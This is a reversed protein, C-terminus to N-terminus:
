INFQPILKTGSDDESEIASLVRVNKQIGYKNIVTVIDGIFFDKGYKFAVDSLVEGSFGETYSLAALNERGREALLKLYTEEDIEGDSGKNSSIDRADTFTEFRNLGSLENNLDAYVRDLGEGEGGILTANAYEETFLQYDTNYLNEFEDSFVVYPRETQGYSRDTGAYLVFVMSNNTVFIDWGYHYTKCIETIVDDLHEGTVQKEINDNLGASVGLVLGPIIRNSDTPSIANDNVLSRISEEATGTLTTQNWVIRQHLLFKLERGTACLFDGNEVDTILQINKIIMVKEYTSVSTRSTNSVIVSGGEGTIEIDVTNDPSPIGDQMCKGFLRFSQIKSNVLRISEGKLEKEIDDGSTYIISMGCESDNTIDQLIHTGFLKETENLTFSTTIPESLEYCLVIPHESLHNKWLTVDNTNYANDYVYIDGTTAVSMGQKCGYTGITGTPILMYNTCCGNPYANNDVSKKIKNNIITSSYRYKGTSNTSAAKWDESGDLVITEFRKIKEGTGNAYVVIEDCLWQQGNSDTYNGENIVQVGSIGGPTLFTTKYETKIEEVRIDSSRVVYNNKQLLKIAKDTAGLYLEFDGVESFSPRWINSVYEDIVGSIKFDPTLVYVNNM